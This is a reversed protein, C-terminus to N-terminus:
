SVDLPNKYWIVDVDQFLFDYGLQSVIHVCYVKAFMMLRFTDDAYEKAAEKPMNSFIRESYYSHLGMSTALMHTEPDTAFLIIKNLLDSLGKSNANCIVLNININQISFSFLSLLTSHRM